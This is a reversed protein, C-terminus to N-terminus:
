ARVMDVYLQRRFPSLALIQRESWGYAAALTHIDVLVRRAWADIESWLYSVIDFHARWGHGCSPCTLRLCIEAEPDERSMQDGLQALIPGPLETPDIAHEAHRAGLVCRRLLECGAAETDLEDCAIDLLDASTPLRYDVEYDQERLRHMSPAVLAAPARSRVDTTRFTSELREACQPCGATTALESGFLREHLGLLGCDRQGIPAGLWSGAGLEPWAADLLALAREIPHARHHSEWVALLAQSSPATM